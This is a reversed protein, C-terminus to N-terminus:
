HTINIERRPIFFNFFDWRLASYVLEKHVQKWCSLDLDLFLSLPVSLSLIYYFFYEIKTVLCIVNMGVWKFFMLYLRFCLWTIILCIFSVFHGAKIPMEKIHPQTIKINNVIFGNRSHAVTHWLMYTHKLLIILIVFASSMWRFLHTRANKNTQIEDFVM